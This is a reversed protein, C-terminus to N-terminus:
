IKKNKDLIEKLANSRFDGSIFNLENNNKEIKEKIKLFMNDDNEEANIKEKENEENAMINDNDNIIDKIDNDNNNEKNEKIKNEDDNKKAKFGIKHEGKIRDLLLIKNKEIDKPNNDTLNYNNNLNTNNGINNFDDKEDERNNIKIDEKKDLNLDDYNDNFNNEKNEKFRVMEGPALIALNNVINEEKKNNKYKNKLAISKLRREEFNMTIQEKYKDNKKVKPTFNREKMLKKTKETRRKRALSLDEIIKIGKKKESYPRKKKKENKKQSVFSNQNINENEKITELTEKPKMKQLYNMNNNPQIVKYSSPPKIQLQSLPKPPPQSYINNEKPKNQPQFGKYNTNIKPEFTCEEKIKNLKEIKMNQIKDKVKQIHNMEKNFFEDSRNMNQPINTNIYNNYINRNNFNNINPNSYNYNRFIENDYNNKYFDNNLGQTFYNNNYKQYLAPVNNDYPNYSRNSRSDNSINLNNYNNNNSYNSYYSNDPNNYNLDNMNIREINNANNININNNKLLNYNQYKNLPFKSAINFAPSYYVHSEVNNMPKKYGKFNKNIKPMFTCEREDDDSSSILENNEEKNKNIDNHSNNDEYNEDKKKEIKKLNKTSKKSKNKKKQIYLSINLFFNIYKSHMKNTLINKLNNLTRYKLILQYNNFSSLISDCLKSISNTKIFNNNFYITLTDRLKDTLRLYNKYSLKSYIELFMNINEYELIGIENFYECIKEIKM